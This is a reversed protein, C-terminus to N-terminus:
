MAPERNRSTLRSQRQEMYGRDALVNNGSIEVKELREVVTSQIM